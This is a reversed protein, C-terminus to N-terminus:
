TLVSSLSSAAKPILSRKRIFLFIEVASNVVRSAAKLSNLVVGPRPSIANCSGLLGKGADIVTVGAILVASIISCNVM